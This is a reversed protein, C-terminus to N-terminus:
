KSISEIIENLMTITKERLLFNHDQMRWKQCYRNFTGLLIDAFLESDVGSRFLKLENGKEIQTKIFETRDNLIAKMKERLVPNLMLAEHSQTLATIAPYNEYYRAFVDFYYTIAEIPQMKKAEVTQVIALDYKCFYALVGELLDNKTPFHKFIVTESIGQKKAIEKTSIAQIGFTDIADITALVIAERRSILIISNMYIGRQVHSM